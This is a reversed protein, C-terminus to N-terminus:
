HAASAQANKMEEIKQKKLKDLDPLIMKKPQLKETEQLDEWRRGTLWGQAYIPTRGEAMLGPRERATHSAGTIITELIDERYVQLWADAARSKGPPYGFSNWFRNFGDLTKGRLKKKKASLYFNEEKPKPKEPPKSVDDDPVDTKQHAFPKINKEEEEEEEEEEQSNTRSANAIRESHTRKANAIKEWRKVAGLKGSRSNKENKQRVLDLDNEIRKHYWIDDDVHFFERLVPEADAWEDASMRVVNALRNNTNRLAQGRQWYNFILLLYAGNQAATLHATDALYDSIYLQIYPLSTM